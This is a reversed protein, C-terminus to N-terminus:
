QNWFSWGGFNFLQFFTRKSKLRLRAANPAFTEKAKNLLSHLGYENAFNDKQHISGPFITIKSDINESM